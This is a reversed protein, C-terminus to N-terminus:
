TYKLWRALEVLSPRKGYMLVGVRYIRAAFYIVAATSLVSILISLGIQWFPPPQMAIRLVMLIPSFFPIMSLGVSMPSNPDRLIINFCFFAAVILFTVPMQVQQMEQENSVMAGVAAYLSAYLFYGCLFFITMYISIDWPLHIGPLSSGPRFMSAVATGYLAILGGLVGWILYQTLGVAAVGIIKGLMLYVPRVSAVLLEIVRTSKEEIVSRMTSVGYVLVTLYLVMAVALAAFFTQGKEEAEGQASVKILKVDVGKVLQSVDAVNVGRQRLREAIVADNVADDLADHSQAWTNRAHLEASGKGSLIDDPISLFADLEEHEVQSRAADEDTASPRALIKTVEYAPLGNPLKSTLRQAISNGLDGTDDLIALKLTKDNEQTATYAQFAFMGIGFAPLLITSLIFAKTRVRVLYERKLVLWLKRM